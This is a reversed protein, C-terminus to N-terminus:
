CVAMAPHSVCHLPTIQELILLHTFLAQLGAVFAQAVVLTVQLSLLIHVVSEHLGEVPHTNVV